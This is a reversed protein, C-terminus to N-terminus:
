KYYIIFDSQKILHKRFLQNLESIKFKKTKSAPRGKSPVTIALGGPFGLASRQGTQWGDPSSM